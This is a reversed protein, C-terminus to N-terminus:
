PTVFAAERNRKVDAAAEQAVIARLNEDYKPRQADTLLTRTQTLERKRLEAMRELAREINQREFPGRQYLTVRAARIPAAEDNFSKRYKDELLEIADRQADTIDPVGILPLELSAWQATLDEITMRPPATATSSAAVTGTQASVAPASAMMVLTLTTACTAGASSSLRMAPDLTLSVAWRVDHAALFSAGASHSFSAPSALKTALGADGHM